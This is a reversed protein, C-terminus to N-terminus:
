YVRRSFLNYYWYTDGYALRMQETVEERSKGSQLLEALSEWFQKYRSVLKENVPIMVRKEEPAKDMFLIYAEAVHMPFAEGTHLKVFKRFSAWFRRSDRRMMSFFLAQESALKSDAEYWMSISNVIYGDSSEVGTIEDRYSNHLEKITATADKPKWHAYFPHHRLQSIYRNALQDEGNAHACQALMKLYAPAFGSQVACEFSLRFGENLMGYNYYALPAAIELFSVHVSDPNHIGFTENGLAFSRELLGGEHMLAVNKLFVMSNTPKKSEQAIHLVEKWNDDVAYRTMRMENIYNRDYFMFSVIFIIGAVASLVPVYWKDLYRRFLSICVCLAGLVWFPISLSESVDSPTIFRPLGAYQVTELPMNSYVLNHWIPACFVVVVVAQFELWSPKEILALCIIFILAFWGLIPFLFFGVLYWLGHWKRPTYRAVWLLLLMILLGVSQSFWYGRITITYIWYGLDVVSAVLCAIPLLMLASTCIAGARLGAANQDLRFAKIGVLFILIWIAALMATGLAPYYFFQTLWAGVYEMAGFPRSMLTNFYPTGYLFESRDHATYFVEQNIYLVYVVFLIFAFISGYLTARSLKVSNAM